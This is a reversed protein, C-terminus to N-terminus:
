PRILNLLKTDGAAQALVPVQLLEILPVYHHRRTAGTTFYLRYAGQAASAAIVLRRGTASM